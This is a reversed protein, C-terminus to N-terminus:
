EAKGKLPLLTVQVAAGPKLGKPSSAFELEVDRVVIPQSRSKGHYTRGLRTVRADLAINAGPVTVRAPQGAQVAVAQVEPVQAQVILQDPDALTAVSLGMWVQGGVTFKEGNFQTRYLVMGDRQAKVTLKAQGAAFLAIAAEHQAIESGLAAIEARRARAQADRQRLALAALEENLSREIVLKDYDVRRILEKPQMAKRQAREYNSQAEAVNLEASREGEAHDLKVKALASQKEKLSSRRTDLKSQVENAQFTAIPQGAKVAAGEPALQALTYRWVEPITPPSIPLATRSAIEGEIQLQAPAPTAAATGAIEAQTEVLVSMGAVLALTHQEPLEIDLRFYRANGWSVRAEPASAIAAIRATLTAGPLADFGVRVSQGESIFPRDAELAWARVRMKGTGMVQGVTNGPYASSGEDYREGRWDSYGHVVVGDRTARVQVQEQRADNFAIQVQLKKAELEADTRRRTVADAASTSAKQKVDLDREAREREGQYRDFDLGSIQARPLAADVRAKALAARANALAREAEVAKVELDATEKEARLVAQEADIRLQRVSAPEQVEIRLVVDGTKVVAGEEVFNRLVVPSSNSPPVLIAQSDFADVVGTLLLPRKVAGSAVAAVSTKAAAGHSSGPGYNAFVIYALPALAAACLLARGKM